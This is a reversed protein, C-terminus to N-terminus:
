EVGSTIDKLEQLQDFEQQGIETFYPKIILWLHAKAANQDELNLGKVLSQHYWMNEYTWLMDAVGNLTGDNMKRLSGRSINFSLLQRLQQTQWQIHNHHKDAIDKNSRQVELADIYFFSYAKQIEFANDWHRDLHEFLPVINLEKLLNEQHQALQTYLALLIEQKNEFHYALNGVSVFAEDAIHQLRVNVYGDQNFLKLAAKLINGKTEKM